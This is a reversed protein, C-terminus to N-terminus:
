LHRLSLEHGGFYVLLGTRKGLINNSHSRNRGTPPSPSDTELVDTLRRPLGHQTMVSQVKAYVCLFHVKMSHAIWCQKHAQGCPHPPQPCILCLRSNKFSRPFNILPSSTSRVGPPQVATYFHVLHELVRWFRIVIVEGKPQKYIFFCQTCLSIFVCCCSIANLRILHLRSVLRRPCFDPFTHELANITTLKPAPTGFPVIHLSRQM